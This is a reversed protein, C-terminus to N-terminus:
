RVPCGPGCRRPQGPWGRGNLVAAVQAAVLCPRTTIDSWGYRLTLVGDVAAANDRAIDHWRAEVPHSAVGDTEVAVGYDSYLNDRYENRRSRVVKVQRRAKPLGHAREVHRVYRLELGSHVGDTVAALATTLDARWRLKQRLAMADLIRGSTTFRGGCARCLWDFADDFTQAAQTLDLV